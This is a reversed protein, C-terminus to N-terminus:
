KDNMMAIMDDPNLHFLDMIKQQLDNLKAYKVTHVGEGLRIEVLKINKLEAIIENFALQKKEKENIAKLFPYIKDEMAKILVYAWFCIQVHGRTQHEKRHYIPRVCINESKLDRFGHEVKQLNKYEQRVECKDLLTESVNSCIVDKGCLNL